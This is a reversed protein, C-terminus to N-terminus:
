VENKEGRKVILSKLKLILKKCVNVMIKALLFTLIGLLITIGALILGMGALLLGSGFNGTFMDIFGLLAIIASAGCSIAGAGLGIVGSWICIYIAIIVVIGVLLLPLWIYFTSALLIIEWTKLKRNLGIKEKVLKPISIDALTIKIIDDIKGLSDVAEEESLGDEIKDVLIENYYEITKNIDEQPVGKLKIELLSIFEQRNM